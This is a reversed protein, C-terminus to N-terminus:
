LAHTYFNDNFDRIPFRKKVVEIPRMARMRLVGVHGLPAHDRPAALRSAPTEEVAPPFEIYAGSTHPVRPSVPGAKRRRRARRAIVRGGWPGLLRPNGLTFILTRGRRTFRFIFIGVIISAAGVLEISRM